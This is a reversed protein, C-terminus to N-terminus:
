FHRVNSAVVIASLEGLKESLDDITKQGDAIQAQARELLAQLRSLPEGLSSPVEARARIAAVLGQAESLTQSSSSLVSIAAM